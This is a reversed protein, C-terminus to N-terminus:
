SINRLIGLLSESLMRFAIRPCIHDIIRAIIIVRRCKHLVLAERPYYLRYEINKTGNGTVM